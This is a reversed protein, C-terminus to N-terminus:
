ALIPLTNEFDMTNNMTGNYYILKYKVTVTVGGERSNVTGLSGVTSITIPAFPM